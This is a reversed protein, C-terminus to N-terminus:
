KFKVSYPQVQQFGGPKKCFIRRSYVPAPPDLYYGTIADFPGGPDNELWVKQEQVVKVKKEEYVAIGPGSLTVWVTQGVEFRIANPKIKQKNKSM